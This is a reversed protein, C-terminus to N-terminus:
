ASWIKNRLLTDTERLGEPSGIEYFRKTVEYGGLDDERALKGYVEALDFATQAPRAAIVDAKTISLGWDIYHMQPLRQQKDYVHIKGNEFWINSRDWRDSNRYVTMLASKGSARFADVVPAFHTDLWSDGYMVFFEPGLQDLALRLAGGTGLLTEGDYCYNVSLGFQRGDGVFDEVQEGLYGLCLVVRGIRERQLLRLQHAIFPQGGVEIMAKPMQETLPRLRTALGGALIALPPMESM